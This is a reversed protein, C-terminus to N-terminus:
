STRITANGVRRQDVAERIRRDIEEAGLEASYAKEDDWRANSMTAEDAIRERERQAALAAALGSRYAVVKWVLTVLFLACLSFTTILTWTWFPRCVPAQLPSSVCFSVYVYIQQLVNWLGNVANM